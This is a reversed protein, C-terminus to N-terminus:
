QGSSNYATVKGNLRDILSNFGENKIVASYDARKLSLDSVGAAIVNVILWVGDSKRLVYDLNIQRGDAKVIATKVLLNGRKEEVESTTFTEGSFGSFNAAYTSASLERFITIFRSRPENELTKWYAGTVIRAITHFDFTDTLIPKISEVRGRYGLSDADKMITLLAGHLREVVAKGDAPTQATAAVSFVNALLLVLPASTRWYCKTPQGNRRIPTAM